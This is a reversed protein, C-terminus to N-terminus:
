LGIAPLALRKDVNDKHVNIFWGPVVEQLCHAQGKDRWQAWLLVSNNITYQVNNSRRRDASILPPGTESFYQKLDRPLPM